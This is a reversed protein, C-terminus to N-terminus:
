RCKVFGTIVEGTRLVDNVRQWERHTRATRHSLVLQGSKDELSEVYVEVTDGVKLDPNYRFENIQIVGESKYKVNVVVEKQTLAIVTGDVVEKEAISNLSNDYMKDLKALEAETKGDNEYAHWDFEEKPIVASIVKRIDATEEFMPEDDKRVDAAILDAEEDVVKRIAAKVKTTSKADAKVDANKATIKSAVKKKAGEDSSPKKKEEAM